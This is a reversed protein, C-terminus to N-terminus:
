NEDRLFQLREELDKGNIRNSAIHKIYRWVEKLKPLGKEDLDIHSKQPVLTLTLGTGVGQYPDSKEKNLMDRVLMQLNQILVKQNQGDRSEQHEKIKM